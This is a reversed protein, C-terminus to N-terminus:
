FGDLDSDGSNVFWQDRRALRDVEAHDAVQAVMWHLPSPARIFRAGLLAREVNPQHVACRLFVLKEKASDVLFQESQNLLFRVAKSDHPHTLLETIFGAPLDRSRGHRLIAVGRLDEGAVAALATYRHDPHGHYRWSLSESTRRIVCPFASEVQAWWRDFRGDFEDMRVVRLGYGSRPWAPILQTAAVMLGVSRRAIWPWPATDMLRRPDYVKVYLPIRGLDLFGMRRYTPYISENLGAIFFPTSTAETATIILLPGIGAGREDPAVILDRGWRIPLTKGAVVAVAGSAAFHGVIKGGKRCIWGSSEHQNSWRWHQLIRDPDQFARAMPQDAYAEKFFGCLEEARDSTMPEIKLRRLLRAQLRGLNVAPRDKGMMFGVAALVSVESGM